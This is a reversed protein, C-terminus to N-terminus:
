SKPVSTEAYCSFQWSLFCHWFVSLFDTFPLPALVSFDLAIIFFYGQDNPCKFWKGFFEKFSTWNYLFFFIFISPVVFVGVLFFYYLKTLRELGFLKSLADVLQNCCIGCCCCVGGTLLSGM